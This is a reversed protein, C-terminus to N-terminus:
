EFSNGNVFVSMACRMMEKTEPHLFNISVQRHLWGESEDEHKQFLFFCFISFICRFM